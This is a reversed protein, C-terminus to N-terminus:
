SSDVVLSLVIFLILITFSVFICKQWPVCEEGFKKLVSPFFVFLGSLTIVLYISSMNNMKYFVKRLGVESNCQKDLNLIVTANVVM